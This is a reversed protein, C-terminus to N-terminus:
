VPIFNIDENSLECTNLLCLRLEKIDEANFKNFSKSPTITTNLIASILETYLTTNSQYYIKLVENPSM